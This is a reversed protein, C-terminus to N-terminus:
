VPLPIVEDDDGVVRAFRQEKWDQKAQEIRDKSSSVFNWWMHRPGDLPAGGLIMLRAEGHVTAEARPALVVLAGEEFTQDELTVTGSAVYFALEEPETPLALSGRLTADAYLTETRTESPATAGFATGSILRITAGEREVVPLSSAPHHVFRPPLEEESTHLGVWAQIGHVRHVKAREDPPTRESHAIGQGAIMWNVDGPVILQESGLSDRHLIAGEFLYTLTALAIHPHPRVDMGRGAPLEVPGMQDLFVFPGVHRRQMAPLTRRVTLGEVLDRQRGRIVIDIASM